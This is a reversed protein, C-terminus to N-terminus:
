DVAGNEPKGRNFKGKKAGRNKKKRIAKWYDDGLM